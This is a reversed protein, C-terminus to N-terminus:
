FPQVNDPHPLMGPTHGSGAFGRERMRQYRHIFATNQIDTISVNLAHIQLRHKM